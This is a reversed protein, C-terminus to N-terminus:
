RESYASCLDVHLVSALRLKVMAGVLVGPRTDELEEVFAEAAAATVTCRRWHGAAESDPVPTQPDTSCQGSCKSHVDLSVDSVLADHKCLLDACDM